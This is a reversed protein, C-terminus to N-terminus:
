IWPRVGLPKALTRVTARLSALFPAEPFSDNATLQVYPRRVVTLVPTVLVNRRHVSVLRWSPRDTSRSHYRGKGNAVSKALWCSCIHALDSGIWLDNAHDALAGPRLIRWLGRKRVLFAPRISSTLHAFKRPISEPFPAKLTALMHGMDARQDDSGAVILYVRAEVGFDGFDMM